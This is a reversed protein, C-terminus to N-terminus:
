KVPYLSAEPAIVDRVAVKLDILDVQALLMLGARLLEGKGTSIGSRALRKKLKSLRRFESARMRLSCRRAKGAKRAKGPKQESAPLPAVALRRFRLENAAALIAEASSVIAPSPM